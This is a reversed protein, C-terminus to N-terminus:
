AIVSARASTKRWLNCSNSITLLVNSSVVSACLARLRKTKEETFETDRHHFRGQGRNLTNNAMACIACIARIDSARDITKTDIRPLGLLHRASSARSCRAVDRINIM